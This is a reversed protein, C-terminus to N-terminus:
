RVVGVLPRRRADCGAKTAFEVKAGRRPESTPTARLDTGSVRANAGRRLRDHPHVRAPRARGDAPGGIIEEVDEGSCFGRGRGTIVLVKVDERPFEALLDRVDAYAEFTLASRKDPRNLALTMVGDDIEVDFNQWDETIKASGRFPSM